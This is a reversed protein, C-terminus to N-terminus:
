ALVESARLAGALYAEARGLEASVTAQALGHERAVEAQTRGHLHVLELVAAPRPFDVQLQRLARGIESVTVLVEALDGGRGGDVSVIVVEGNPAAEGRPHMGQPSQMADRRVFYWELATRVSRFTLSGPQRRSLAAEARAVDASARGSATGHLDLASIQRSPNM